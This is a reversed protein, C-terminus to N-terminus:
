ATRLKAIRARLRAEFVNPTVCARFLRIAIRLQSAVPHGIGTGEHNVFYELLEAVRERSFTAEAAALADSLRNGAIFEPPCKSPEHLDPGQELAEISDNHRELVDM